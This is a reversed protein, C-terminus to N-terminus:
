GFFEEFHLPQAPTRIASALRDALREAEIETDDDFNVRGFLKDGVDLRIDPIFRALQADGLSTEDHRLLMHSLEHLICQTRHLSSSEPVHYITHTGRRLLLLGCASTGNLAVLPVIQLKTRRIREVHRVVNELSFGGPIRLSGFLADARALPTYDPRDRESGGVKLQLRL